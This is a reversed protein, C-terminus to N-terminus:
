SACAMVKESYKVVQQIARIVLDKDEQMIRHNSKETLVHEGQPLLGAM